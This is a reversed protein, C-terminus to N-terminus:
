FPTLFAKHKFNEFTRFVGRKTVLTKDGGFIDHEAEFAIYFTEAM